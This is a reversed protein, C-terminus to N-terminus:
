PIPNFLESTLMSKCTGVPLEGDEISLSTEARRSVATCKSHTLITDHFGMFDMRTFIVSIDSSM